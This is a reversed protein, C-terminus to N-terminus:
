TRDYGSPSITLCTDVSPPLSGTQGDRASFLAMAGAHVYTSGETDVVVALGAGADGTAVARLAAELVKRQSSM